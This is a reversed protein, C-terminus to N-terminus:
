KHISNKGISTTHIKAQAYLSDVNAQVPKIAMGPRLSSVGEIVIRDGPKLGSQVIFLDGITNESLQVPTNVISDKKNLTFVFKKGQLDYTANQPILIATDLKIPLKITASNGSRILGNPNSFNARFTISGTETSVLGSATVIRGKVPYESGDALVLSVDERSALKDKVTKGKVAKLFGFMQKENLSFYAFINKTNYVTTLPNASTSTILTGVKYPITSIVGDAPSALFTYGVNVQANLLDAKASALSAKKSQLTFEDSKLEYDSIIKKDVLPRVKEVNMEATMVDAQAINVSASASRVAAEYQPNRLKFLPQGKHVVAGEDVFIKEIFGDVKPRIEIDQEGQITAPFNFYMTAPGTYVAVTKYPIPGVPGGPGGPGPKKGSNCAAFLFPALVLVIFLYNKKFSISTKMIM